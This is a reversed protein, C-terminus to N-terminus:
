ILGKCLTCLRKLYLVKEHDLLSITFKLKRRKSSECFSLTRLMRHIRMKWLSLTCLMKHISLKCLSLTCLVKAQELELFAQTRLVKTCKIEPQSTSGGTHLAYGSKFGSTAGSNM